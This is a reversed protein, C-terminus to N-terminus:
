TAPGPDARHAGVVLRSEPSSRVWSRWRVPGTRGLTPLVMGKRTGAVAVVGSPEVVWFSETQRDYLVPHPGLFYGTSGLMMRRGDVVPDHISVAQTSPADPSYIVLLPRDDVTDNIVEVKDLVAMPYAVRVGGTELGYVPADPHMREWRTEGAVEVITRDISRIVDRGLPEGFTLEAVDATPLRFWGHAEEVRDWGSWLLTEAGEVRRWDSPREAYSPDPNIGVFGVPSNLDIIVLDDRLGLWEGYLAPAEFLAMGSLLVTAGFLVGRPAKARAVAGLRSASPVPDGVRPPSPADAPSPTPPDVPLSGPGPVPHADAM